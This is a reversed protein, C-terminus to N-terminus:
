QDRPAGTQRSEWYNSPPRRQRAKAAAAPTDCASATATAALPPAQRMHVDPPQASAAAPGCRNRKTSLRSSSNGSTTSMDDEAHGGHRKNLGLLGVMDADTLQQYEICHPWSHTSRKCLMVLYPKLVSVPQLLQSRHERQTLMDKVDALLQQRQRQRNQRSGRRPDVLEERLWDESHEWSAQEAETFPAPQCLGAPQQQSAFHPQQQPCSPPQTPPQVALQQQAPLPASLVPVPPQQRVRPQEPPAAPPSPPRQQQSPAAQASQQEPAPRPSVPAAQQHQRPASQRQPLQEQTLPPRQQQPLQRTPVAPAAQQQAALTSAAQPQAAPTSAVPAAPQRQEPAPQQQPASQRQPAARKPDHGAWNSVEITVAGGNNDRFSRPLHQLCPDAVPPKVIAVMVDLQGRDLHMAAEHSKLRGTYEYLVDFSSSDYGAACLVTATSGKILFDWSMSHFVVHLEGEHLVRNAYAFVPLDLTGYQPATISLHQEQIIQTRKAISVADERFAVVYRSKSTGRDFPKEGLFYPDLQQIVARCISSEAQRRQDTDFAGILAEPVEALSLLLAPQGRIPERRDISVPQTSHRLAELAAIPRAVWGSNPAAQQTTPVSQPQQAPQHQTPTAPQSASPTHCQSVRHVSNRCSHRLPHLLGPRSQQRWPLQQQQQSM